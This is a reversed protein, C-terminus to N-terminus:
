HLGRLLGQVLVFVLLVVLGRGFALADVQKLNIGSNVLLEDVMPLIRKTHTRQALKDLYTKEGKHWLAVSCAETSTDLALLTINKM